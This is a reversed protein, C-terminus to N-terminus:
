LTRAFQTTGPPRVIFIRKDPMVFTIFYGYISCSQIDDATPRCYRTDCYKLLTNRYPDAM